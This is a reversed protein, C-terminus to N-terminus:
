VHFCHKLGGFRSFEVPDQRERTPGNLILYKQSLFKHFLYQHEMRKRFLVKGVKTVRVCDCVCVCVCM